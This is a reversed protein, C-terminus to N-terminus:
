PTKWIYGTFKTRWEWTQREAVPLNRGAERCATGLDSNCVLGPAIHIMDHMVCVHHVVTIAWFPLKLYKDWRYKFNAFPYLQM